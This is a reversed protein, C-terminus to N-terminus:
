CAPRPRASRRCCRRAPRRATTSWATSASTRASLRGTALVGNPDTVADEVNDTRKYRMGPIHWCKYDRWMDRLCISCVCQAGRTSFGVSVDRIVGARVKNIIPSSAPDTLAYADSLV